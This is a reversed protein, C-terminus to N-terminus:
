NQAFQIKDETIESSCHPCVTKGSALFTNVQPPDRIDADECFLAEFSKRCEPCSIELDYFELWGSM